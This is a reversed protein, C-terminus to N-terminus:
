PPPLPYPSDIIDAANGAGPRTHVHGGDKPDHTTTQMARDGRLSSDRFQAIALINAPGQEPDASRVMGLARLYASWMPSVEVGAYEYAQILAQYNGPTGPVSGFNNHAKAYRYKHSEKDGFVSNLM